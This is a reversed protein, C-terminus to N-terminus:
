EVRGPCYWGFENPARFNTFALNISVELTRVHHWWGVPIFLAEGPSLVVEKRSVRAFEPFAGLDPSEADIDSYVGHHMNRILSLEFPPCLLIRKRGYVQCLLVNAVDHHLSTVTGAPGLWVWMWGGGRRDDLYSHPASLDEFLPELGPRVAVRNDALLCTDSTGAASAVRDCFEGLRTTVSPADYVDGYPDSGRESRLEVEVDGFREKFYAPSWRSLGPWAHTADTLVVPVSAAYYRNFFEDREMGSRRAVASPDRGLEEVERSLRGVLEQARVLRAVRRAGAMLPSRRIAEIERIGVGRPVGSRELTGLLERPSVDLLLNEAVWARWAESLSAPGGERAVRGRFLRGRPARHPLM